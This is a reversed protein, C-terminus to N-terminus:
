EEFATAVASPLESDILGDIEDDTLEADILNYKRQYNYAVSKPALSGQVWSGIATMTASDVTASVFDQKAKFLYEGDKATYTIGLYEYCLLIADHIAENINAIAMSATSNQTSSDQNSQTATKQIQTDSSESLKAGLAQMIAYKKDMAEGALNNPEAQAFGFKGNEELMILAGAGIRIGQKELATMRQESVGSMWAQVQGCTFVSQEYDASNRYHALNMKALSELPINQECWDNSDSGGIVFPIRNFKVNGSKTPYVREQHIVFGDKDGQQNITAKRWVEVFYGTEDLGLYRWQEVQESSFIDDPDTEYVTEYLVIMNTVTQGGIVTTRWNIISEPAYFNITPRLANREVDAQSVEDSTTPYDVFLGFRGRELQAEFAKQAIQYISLGAGNADRKMYDLQKDVNLVPDDKFAQGTYKDLTDKTVEVFVARDKYNSYRALAEPTRIDKNPMPLYREGAAKIADEGNCVDTMRQWRPALADYQPHTTNIPM